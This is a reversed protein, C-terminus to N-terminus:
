FREMKERNHIREWKWKRGEQGIHPPGDDWMRALIRLLRDRVKQQMWHAFVRLGLFQTDTSGPWQYFWPREDQSPGHHQGSFRRDRGNSTRRNEAFAIAFKYWYLLCNSLCSYLLDPVCPWWPLFVLMSLQLTPGQGWPSREVGLM